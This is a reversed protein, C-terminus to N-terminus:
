GLMSFYRFGARFMTTGTYSASALIGFAFIGVLFRLWDHFMAVFVAHIVFFPALFLAAGWVILM